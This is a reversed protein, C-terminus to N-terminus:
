VYVYKLIYVYTVLLTLSTPLPFDVDLAKEKLMKKKM